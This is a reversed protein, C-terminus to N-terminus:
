GIAFAPPARQAIHGLAAASRRGANIDIVFFCAEGAIRVRAATIAHVFRVLRTTADALVRLAVSATVAVLVCFAAHVALSLLVPGGLWLTGGLVHGFVVRQEITEMLYLVGIQAAGIFPVLRLVSPGLAVAALTLWPRAPRPEVLSSRVRLCLHLLVFLLGALLVPMVDWTSHDTFNGPGFWGANSASEVLPDAISAAILAVAACFWIKIAMAMFRTTLRSSPHGEM